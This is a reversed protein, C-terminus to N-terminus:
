LRTAASAGPMKGAENRSARRAPHREIELRRRHDGGQDQEALHELQAGARLGAARDAGQEIERGLARAEDRSSPLSSRCRREFRDDGALAQPHPRALLHRDVADHELAVARDVLRHDGALRHRDLLRRAVLDGAGGDVAGAAEDHAGLADAAIRQERLDDRHDGLRLARARRDLPEGVRDGAPEHRRDDSTATTVNTAQASKPGGGAIPKASTLATATSIMAQGQASPRAVGIDIMTPVPRPAAGADQDLVGLREFQQLLDIRQDDVLGAGQGLALRPETPTM